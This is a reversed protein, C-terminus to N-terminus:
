LKNFRDLVESRSLLFQPDDKADALFATQLEELVTPCDRPLQTAGAWEADIVFNHVDDWSRRGSLFDGVLSKFETIPFEAM